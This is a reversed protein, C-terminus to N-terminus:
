GGERHEALWAEVDGWRWRLRGRPLRVYPPGTGERVWRDITRTSVNLAEALETKRLMDDPHRAQREM